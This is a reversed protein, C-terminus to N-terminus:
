CNETDSRSQRPTNAGTIDFVAILTHSPIVYLTTTPETIYLYFVASTYVHRPYSSIVYLIQWICFFINTVKLNTAYTHKWFIASIKKQLLNISCSIRLQWISGNSLLHIMIAAAIESWNTIKVTQSARFRFPTKIFLM